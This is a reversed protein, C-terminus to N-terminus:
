FPLIITEPTRILIANISTEFKAKNKNEQPALSQVGPTTCALCTSQHQAVDRASRQKNTQKLCTRV